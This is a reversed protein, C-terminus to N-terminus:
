HYFSPANMESKDIKFYWSCFHQTKADLEKSKRLADKIEDASYMKLLIYFDDTYGRTLVREIVYRKHKKFDIESVTVDWFLNKTYPFNGSALLADLRATDTFQFYNIM